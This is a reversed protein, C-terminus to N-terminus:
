KKKRERTEKIRKKIWMIYFVYMCICMYSVLIRSYISPNQNITGLQLSIVILPTGTFGIIAPIVILLKILEKKINMEKEEQVM